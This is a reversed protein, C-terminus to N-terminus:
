AGEDQRNALQARLRELEAEAARQRQTAERAITEAERRRESEEVAIEQAEVAIAQAELRLHHEEMSTTIPTGDPLYPRLLRVRNLQMWRLWLNLQESFLGGQADPEIEVISESPSRRWGRLEAPKKLGPQHIFYEEVGIDILYLRIKEYRDRNATSDSLFEFVAAPVAGEKWTYFSDRPPTKEVGLVVYVDPAVCKQPHEERYYIFSDVGVYIEKNIEFYRWLQDYFTNIQIGHSGTAAMPIDDKCPYGEIYITPNGTAKPFRPMYKRRKLEFENVTDVINEKRM